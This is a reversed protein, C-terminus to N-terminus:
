TGQQARVRRGFSLELDIFRIGQMQLPSGDQLAESWVKSEKTPSKVEVDGVM